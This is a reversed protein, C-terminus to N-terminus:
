PLAEGAAVDQEWCWGTVLAASPVCMELRGGGALAEATAPKSLVGVYPMFCVM